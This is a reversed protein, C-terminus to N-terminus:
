EHRRNEIRQGCFELELMINRERCSDCLTETAPIRKYEKCEVCGKFMNEGSDREREREPM